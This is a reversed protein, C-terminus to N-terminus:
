RRSECRSGAREPSELVAARARHPNKTQLRAEAPPAGAGRRGAARVAVHGAPPDLVRSHVARGAVSEGHDVRGLDLVRARQRVRAAGAGPRRAAM